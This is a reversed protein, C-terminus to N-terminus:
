CIARCACPIIIARRITISRSPEAAAEAARTANRRQRRQKSRFLQHECKRQERRAILRSSPKSRPSLVQPLHKQLFQQQAFWWNGRSQFPRMYGLLETARRRKQEPWPLEKVGLLELHATDALAIIDLVPATTLRRLIGREGVPDFLCDVGMWREQLQFAIHLAAVFGETYEDINLSTFALAVAPFPTEPPMKVYIRPPDTVNDTLLLVARQGSSAIRKRLRKTPVWSVPQAVRPAPQLRHSPPSMNTPATPPVNQPKPPAPKSHESAPSLTHSAITPPATRASPPFPLTRSSADAPPPTTPRLAYEGYPRHPREAAIEQMWNATLVSWQSPVDRPPAPQRLLHQLFQCYM